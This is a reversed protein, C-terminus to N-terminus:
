TMPQAALGPVAAKGIVGVGHPPGQSATYIYSLGVVILAAVAVVAILFGMRQEGSRRRRSLQPQPARSPAPERPATMSGGTQQQSSLLLNTEMNRARTAAWRLDRFAL